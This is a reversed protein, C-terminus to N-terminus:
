PSPSSPTATPFAPIDSTPSSPARTMWAVLWLGDERASDILRQITRRQPRSVSFFRWYRDDESLTEYMRLLLDIDDAVAPRITLRRGDALSILEPEDM